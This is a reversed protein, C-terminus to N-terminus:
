YRPRGKVEDVLVKNVNWYTEILIGKTMGEICLRKIM